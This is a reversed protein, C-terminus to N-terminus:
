LSHWKYQWLGACRLVLCSFSSFPTMIEKGPPLPSPKRGCQQEPPSPLGQLRKNLYFTSWKMGKSSTWSIPHPFTLLAKGWHIFIFNEKLDQHLKMLIEWIYGVCLECFYSMNTMIASQLTWITIKHWKLFLNIQYWSLTIFDYHM